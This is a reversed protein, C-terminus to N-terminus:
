PTCAGSSVPATGSTGRLIEAAVADAAIAYGVGASTRSAGFVIGGVLGPAVLLPGGSDGRQVDARIEVIARDVTGQDYIDPGIAEYSATVAAPIVVLPGGAPHGLAAAATGRGPTTTALRLPPAALGTVSLVAVDQQPDFLVLRAPAAQGGLEVRIQEGGAVVHANTVVAHDTVFFGTGLQERGCGITVVRVTSGVASATLTKAASTTPPDIPPAPSPEIGAFLQPLDTPQLLGVLDAAVGAPDPLARDVAQVIVSERASATLGPVAGALLLGSVLWTVLVGQALGILAGGALDVAGLLRQRMAARASAGLASGAAEGLLTLAALGALAVFAREPQQIGALTDHLASALVVSIGFGALAGVLGLLQPLFGAWAGLGTAVLLVAIAALDLLNVGRIIPAGGCARARV